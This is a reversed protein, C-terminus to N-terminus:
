RPMAKLAAYAANIVVQKRPHYIAVVAVRDSNLIDISWARAFKEPGRADVDLERGRAERRLTSLSVNKM